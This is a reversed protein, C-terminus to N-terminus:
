VGGDCRVELWQQDVLEILWAKLSDPKCGTARAITRQSPFREDTTAGHHFIAHWVRFAGHSIPARVLREFIAKKSQESPTASGGSVARGNEETPEQHRRRHAATGGLARCGRDPGM